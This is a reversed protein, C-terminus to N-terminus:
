SVEKVVRQASALAGHMWGPMHSTHDGAFHVRGEPRALHPLLAMMQGPAFWAYAGKSWQEEHWMVTADASIRDGPDGLTQRVLELTTAMRHTRDLASLERARAGSSYVELLAGASGSRLEEIFISRDTSVYGSLNEAAWYRDRSQLFTRTVSTSKQERIARMKMASFAPEIAVDRLTQFPIACVLRDGTVDRTGGPGRVTVSVGSGRHGIRVVASNLQVRDGLNAAFAKPLADNGGDIYFSPDGSPRSAAERIANLASVADIGDGLFELYGQRLQLIQENTAGLERYLASLTKSDYARIQEPPWSPSDVPTAAQLATRWADLAPAPKAGVTRVGGILSVSLGGGGKVPVLPLGFQKAYAMTLTHSTRITQAGAEAYLGAAFPERITYVRGGVRSRAELVVVEHGANVLEFATCLGALGAGVVIIRQRPSSQVGAVLLTGALSLFERRTTSM